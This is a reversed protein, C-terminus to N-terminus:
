PDLGLAFLMLRGAKKRQAGRRNLYDQRSSEGEWVTKPSTPFRDSRLRQSEVTGGLDDEPKKSQNLEGPM